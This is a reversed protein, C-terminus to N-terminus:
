HGPCSGSSVGHLVTPAPCSETHATDQLQQGKGGRPSTGDHHEWRTLVRSLAAAAAAAAAAFHQPLVRPTCCSEESHCPCGGSWSYCVLHGLEARAARM